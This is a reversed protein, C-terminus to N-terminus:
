CCDFHSNFLYARLVSCYLAEPEQKENKGWLLLRASFPM